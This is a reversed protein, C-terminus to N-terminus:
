MLLETSFACHSDAKKRGLCCLSLPRQLLTYEQEHGLLTLLLLCRGLGCTFCKSHQIRDTYEQFPLLEWPRNVTESLSWCGRHQIQLHTPKRWASLKIFISFIQLDPLFHASLGWSQPIITTELLHDNAPSRQHLNSM